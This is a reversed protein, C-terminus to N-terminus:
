VQLNLNPSLVLPKSGQVERPQSRMSRPTTVLENQTEGKLCLQTKSVPRSIKNPLSRPIDGKTDCKLVKLVKAPSQPKNAQLQQFFKRREAFSMIQNQEEVGQSKSRRRRNETDGTKKGISSRINSVQDAHNFVSLKNPFTMHAGCSNESSSRSRRVRSTRKSEIAKTVIRHTTKGTDKATNTNGSTALDSSQKVEKKVANINKTIFDEKGVPNTKTSQGKNLSTRRKSLPRASSNSKGIFNQVNLRKQAFNVARSTKPLTVPKITLQKKPPTTDAVPALIQPSAKVKAKEVITEKSSIISPCYTDQQKPLDDCSGTLEQSIHDSEAVDSLAETNESNETSNVPSHDVESRLSRHSKSRRNSHRRETIWSDNAVVKPSARRLSEIKRLRTIIQRDKTVADNKNSVAPPPATESRLPLSSIEDANKQFDSNFSNPRDLCPTVQILRQKIQNTHPPVDFSQDAAHLNSSNSSIAVNQETQSLKGYTLLQLDEPCPPLPFSSRNKRLRPAPSPVSSNSFTTDIFSSEDTLLESYEPYPPLTFSPEDEIFPGPHSVATVSQEMEQVEGEDGPYPPLTFNLNTSSQSLSLGHGNDSAYNEEELHPETNLNCIGTTKKSVDAHIQNNSSDDPGQDFGFSEVSVQEEGSKPKRIGVHSNVASLEKLIQPKGIDLGTDQKCKTQTESFSHSEDGTHSVKCNFNEKCLTNVNNIRVGKTAIKIENGEQAKNRTKRVFPDVSADFGVTRNWIKAVRAFAKVDGARSQDEFGHDLKVHPMFEEPDEPTMDFRLVPGDTFARPSAMTPKPSASNTKTPSSYDREVDCNHDMNEESAYVPQSKLSQSLSNHLSEKWSESNVNQDNLEDNSSFGDSDRVEEACLFSTKSSLKSVIAHIPKKPISFSTMEKLKTNKKGSSFQSSSQHPQGINAVQKIPSGLVRRGVQRTPSPPFINGSGELNQYSSPKCEVPSSQAHTTEHMIRNEKLGDRGCDQTPVMPLVVDNEARKKLNGLLNTLSTKIPSPSKSLNAEKCSVKGKTPSTHSSLFSQFNLSEQTQRTVSVGGAPMVTRRTSSRRRPTSKSETDKVDKAFSVRRPSPTTLKTSKGFTLGKGPTISFSSSRRKLKRRPLKPSEELQKVELIGLSDKENSDKESSTSSINSRINARHVSRTTPKLSGTLISLKSPTEPECSMGSPTKALSHLAGDQDQAETRGRKPPSIKVSVEHNEQSRRKQPSVRDRSIAPALSRETEVPESPNFLKKPTTTKTRLSLFSQFLSQPSFNREPIPPPERADETSSEESLFALKRESLPVARFPVSYIDEMSKSRRRNLSPKKAVAKKKPSYVNAQNEPSLSCYDGDLQQSSLIRRAKLGETINESRTSIMQPVGSEDIEAYKPSGSSYPIADKICAYVPSQETALNWGAVLHDRDTLSVDQLEGQSSQQLIGSGFASTSPTEPLPRSSFKGSSSILPCQPSSVPYVRASPTPHSRPSPSVRLTSRTPTGRYITAFKSPSTKPLHETQTNHKIYPSEKKSDFNQQISINKSAENTLRTPYASAEAESAKGFTSFPSGAADNSDLKKSDKSDLANGPSLDVTQAPFIPSMVKPDELLPYRPTASEELTETDLDLTRYVAGLDVACTRYYKQPLKRKNWLRIFAKFHVKLKPSQMTDPEKHKEERLWIKLDSLKSLYDDM